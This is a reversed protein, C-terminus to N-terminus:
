NSLHLEMSENEVHPKLDFCTGVRSFAWFYTRLFSSFVKPHDGDGGVFLYM